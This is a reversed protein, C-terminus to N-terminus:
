HSHRLAFAPPSPLIPLTQGDVIVFAEVLTYPFILQYPAARATIQPTGCIVRSHTRCTHQVGASVLATCRTDDETESEVKFVTFLLESSPQSALCHDTLM